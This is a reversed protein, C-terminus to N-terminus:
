EADEEIFEATRNHAELLVILLARNRETDDVRNNMFNSLCHLFIAKNGLTEDEACVLENRDQWWNHSRIKM